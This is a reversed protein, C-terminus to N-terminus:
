PLFRAREDPRPMRCADLTGFIRYRVRAFAKYFPDAVFSPVWRLLGLARWPWGLRACIGFVARTHFSVREDSGSGEVLVISDLDGPWEPHRTRIAAATDGQLPAFTLVRSHDVDLLWQVTRDCFGCVGDYLVLTSM